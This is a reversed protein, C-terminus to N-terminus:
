GHQAEAKLGSEPEALNRVWPERSKYYVKPATGLRALLQFTEPSHVEQLIPDKTDALNGFRIAGTPCSDVCAPIYDAPDIESRGVAAAKEKAAHFRGHCLNCKEVM